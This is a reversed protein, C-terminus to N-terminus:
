FPIYMSGGADASYQVNQWPIWQNREESWVFQFGVLRRQREFKGGGTPTPFHMPLQVEIIDLREEEPDADALPFASEGGLKTTGMGLGENTLSSAVYVGDRYIERVEINQIDMPLLAFLAGRKKADNLFEEDPDLNEGPKGRAARARADRLYDPNILAQLREEFAVPLDAKRSGLLSPSRAAQVAQRVRETARDIDGEVTEETPTTDFSGALLVEAKASKPKQDEHVVKAAPKSAPWFTKAALGVGVIAVGAALVLKTNM